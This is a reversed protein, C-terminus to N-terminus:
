QSFYTAGKADKIYIIKLIYLLIYTISNVWPLAEIFGQLGNTKTGKMGLVM